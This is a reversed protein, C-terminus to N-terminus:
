NIPVLSCPTVHWFVMVTINSTKLSEFRSSIQKPINTALYFLAFRDKQRVLLYAMFAYPPTPTYIWMKKVEASTPPSHGAETGLLKVESSLAGLVWQM